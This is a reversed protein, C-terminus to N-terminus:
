GPLAALLQRFTETSVGAIGFTRDPKFAGGHWDSGGTQFLRHEEALTRLREVVSPTHTPYQVEIGFLGAATLQTLLEEVMIWREAEPVSSRTTFFDGPHALVAVGGAKSILVAAEAPTMAWDGYPVYAPGGREVLKIAKPYPIGRQRAIEQAINPKSVYPGAVNKKLGAFDVDALGAARVKETIERSRANYGDITERLGADLVARDFARAYGLVHVDSNRYRATIEVGQCSSLNCAQAAAQAANFHNTCNHDTIVIGSLGAAAAQTCLDRPAYQADPSYNSHTHLDVPFPQM